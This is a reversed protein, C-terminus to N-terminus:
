PGSPPSKQWTEDNVLARANLVRPLVFLLDSLRNLYCIVANLGGAPTQTLDLSVVRREARRCVTRAGHLLAAARTGGPLIFEGLPPLQGDYLDIERELREAAGDGLMGLVGTAPSPMALDAGVRFLEHQVRHLLTDLDKDLGEARVLGLWANLEDVAGCAEIHPDDKAVRPGMCLNTKGDDGKRTYINVLSIGAANTGAVRGARGV